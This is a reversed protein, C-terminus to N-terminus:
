RSAKLLAYIRINSRRVKSIVAGELYTLWASRMRVPLLMIKMMVSRPKSLRLAKEVESVRIMERISRIKELLTMACDPNAMNEVCGLVREIYRRYIMEMSDEDKQSWGAYLELM